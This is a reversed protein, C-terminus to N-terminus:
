IRQSAGLSRSFSGTHRTSAFWNVRKTSGAAFIKKGDKSFVRPSWAAPGSTLQIPDKSLPRFLGRREDLAYIQAEPYHDPQFYGALFLFFEGSPSWRGCCKQESPHWDRLLQHLTSGSASIEWM